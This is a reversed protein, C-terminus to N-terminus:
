KLLSWRAAAKGETGVRLHSGMGWGPPLPMCPIPREMVEQVRTQWLDTEGEPAEWMIEDHILLRLMERFEPWEKCLAVVARMLIYAGMHQPGGAYCEKAVDSPALEWDDRTKSPPKRIYVDAYHLRFGDPATIYGYRDAEKLTAEQWRKISPFLGMYLAMLRAAEKESGFLDPEEIYAKHATAGYNSAHGIKKSQQREDPYTAKIEALYAALKDDSWTADAPKGIIHSALYSHVDIQCLRIYGPDKAMYGVILAEIGSYDRKNLLNGPSAVYLRRVVDYVREVREIRPLNLLSPDKMALRLTIPNHNFTGCLRGNPKIHPVIGEVFTGRCLQTQRYDILNAYIPDERYKARLIALAKEDFTVRPPKERYDYVMRHHQETAYAKLSQISPKWPLQVAWHPTDVEAKTLAAGFCPNPQKAPKKSGAKGRGATAKGAM